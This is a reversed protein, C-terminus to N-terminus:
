QKMVLCTCTQVIETSSQMLENMSEKAICSLIDDNHACQVSAMESVIHVHLICVEFVM